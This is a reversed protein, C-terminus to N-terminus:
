NKQLKKRPYGIEPSIRGYTILDPRVGCKPLRDDPDSTIWKMRRIPHTYANRKPLVFMVVNFVRV